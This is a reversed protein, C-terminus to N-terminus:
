HTIESSTPDNQGKVRRVPAGHTAVLHAEIVLNHWFEASLARFQENNRDIACPTMLGKRAVAFQM